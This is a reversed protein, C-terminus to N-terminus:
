TRILHGVPADTRSGTDGDARRSAQAKELRSFIFDACDPRSRRRARRATGIEDRADDFVWLRRSGRCPFSHANGGQISAVHLVDVDNIRVRAAFGRADDHGAKRREAAARHGLTQGHERALVVAIAGGADELRAAAVHEDARQQALGDRGARRRAHDEEVVRAIEAHAPVARDAEHARQVVHSADPRAHMPDLRRHAVDLRRQVVIQGHAHAVHERVPVRLVDDDVHRPVARHRAVDRPAAVPEEEHAIVALADRALVDRREGRVRRRHARRELARAHRAAVARRDIVDLQEGVIGLVVAAAEHEARAVRVVARRAAGARARLERAEGGVALERRAHRPPLRAHDAAHERRAVRRGFAADHRRDAAARM